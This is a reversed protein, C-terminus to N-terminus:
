YNDRQRNFEDYMKRNYRDDISTPYRGKNVGFDLSDLALKQLPNRDREYLKTLINKNLDYGKKGDKTALIFFRHFVQYESPDPFHTGVIENNKRLFWGQNRLNSMVERDFTLHNTAEQTKFASARLVCLFGARIELFADYCSFCYGCCKEDPLYSEMFRVVKELADKEYICDSGVNAYWEASVNHVARNWALHFPSVGHINIIRYFPYTQERLSKMCADLQPEGDMSTVIVDVDLM